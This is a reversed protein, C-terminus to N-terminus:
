EGVAKFSHRQAPEEAAGENPGQPMSGQLPEQSPQRDTVRRGFTAPRSVEDFEKGKSPHRRDIGDFPVQQARREVKGLRSAIYKWLETIEAASRSEPNVEMVSGGDVMSTAFDNRHHVTVPAVTGHQSLAIAAESTIRARATAGNVAFILPKGQCEIIDLTAGVARLDHPSPRTPVVVLDAHSVIQEITDTVAPPTDVFVLRVGSLRLERLDNHLDEVNTKVFVPTDSKRVNWWDALSGQPDADVVAVPGAGSLEAQVALQGCLTTKGSGGKQSSFVLVQMPINDAM